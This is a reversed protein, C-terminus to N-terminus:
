DGVPAARVAKITVPAGASRLLGVARCLREIRVSMGPRNLWRHFATPLFFRKEVAVIEFGSRELERAVSRIWFANYRRGRWGLLSLLRRMSADVGAFSRWPPFDVVVARRAVRCLETLVERWDSLHMLVRSCVVSDFSGNKFCLRGADCIALRLTLGEAAAKSVAIRLMEKSGDVSMVSRAQRRLPISLKGTGAGVDLVSGRHGDLMSSFTEIETKQLFTGFEAGFRDQDYWEAVPRQLYPSRESM